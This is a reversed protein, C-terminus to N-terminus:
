RDGASSTRWSRMAGRHDFVATARRPRHGSHQAHGPDPHQLVNRGVCFGPTAPPWRAASGPCCRTRRAVANATWISPAPAAAQTVHTSRYSANRHTGVRRRVLLGVRPRSRRWEHHVESGTLEAESREYWWTPTGSRRTEWRVARRRCVRSLGWWSPPVHQGAADGDSPRPCVATAMRHSVCTTHRDSCDAPRARRRVEVSSGRWHMPWLCTATGASRRDM